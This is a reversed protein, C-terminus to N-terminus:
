GVLARRMSKIRKCRVIDNDGINVGHWPKGESDFFWVDIRTRGINHRSHTSRYCPIKLSGPWNGVSRAQLIGGKMDRYLYLVAHGTAIMDAKDRLACCAFCYKRGQYEGYGTTCGSPVCKANCQSCRITPKGTQPNM